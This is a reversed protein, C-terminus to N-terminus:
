VKPIVVFSPVPVLEVQFVGVQNGKGDLIAFVKPWGGEWGNRHMFYHKAALDALASPRPRDPGDLWHADRDKEGHEPMFYGFQSM